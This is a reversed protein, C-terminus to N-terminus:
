FTASTSNHLRWSDPNSKFFNLRPHIGSGTTSRGRSTLALRRSSPHSRWPSTSSRRATPNKESFSQTEYHKQCRPFYVGHTPSSQTSTVFDKFIQSLGLVATTRTARELPSEAMPFDLLSPRNSKKRFVVTDRLAEPM